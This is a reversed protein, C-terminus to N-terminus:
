AMSDPGQRPSTSAGSSVERGMRKLRERDGPTLKEMRKTVVWIFGAKAARRGLVQAAGEDGELDRRPLNAWVLLALAGLGIMLSLLSSGHVQLLLTMAGTCLVIGIAAFPQGHKVRAWLQNLVFLRAYYPASLMDRGVVVWSAWMFVGGHARAVWPRVFVIRPRIWRSWRTPSQERLRDFDQQWRAEGEADTAVQPLEKTM